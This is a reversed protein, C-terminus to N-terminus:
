VSTTWRREPNEAVALSNPAVHCDEDDDSTADMSEWKKDISIIKFMSSVQSVIPETVAKEKKASLRRTTAAPESATRQAISADQDQRRKSSRVVSRRLASYGQADASVDKVAAPAPKNHNEDVVDESSSRNRSPWVFWKPGSQVEIVKFRFDRKPKTIAPLSENSMNNNNALNSSGANICVEMMKHTKKPSSLPLENKRWKEAIELGQKTWEIRPM